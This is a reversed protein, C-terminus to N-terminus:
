QPTGVLFFFSPDTGNLAHDGLIREKYHVPNHVALTRANRWHRDLALHQQVASAGGTEFLLNAAALVIPAVTAHAKATAIEAADYADKPVPGGERLADAAELQAVAALTTAEAAFATATLKGITQQVLPDEAPSVGAGHSFVRTRGRVYAVADRVVARAIGTLAALHFLQYYATMYGPTERSRWIVDDPDVPVSDLHTTGSATLRQGFGAWDDALEVGPAHADLLAFGFRDEGRRALVAIWDAYLSGTSYYKTGTVRWEDAGTIETGLHGVAGDGIETTANGIVAGAAIRRLWRERSASPDAALYEETIGFHARLAQPLNSDAEGLEILLSFLQRLSAGRGGYAPPVRLATFGAERLWAVPEHLLERHREREVAGEAIRAFIPRFTRALEGDTPATLTDTAQLPTM